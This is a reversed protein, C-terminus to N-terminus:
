KTITTTASVRGFIGIATLVGLISDVIGDPPIPMGPAFNEQVFRYILVIIGLLGAIITKSKYWEKSLEPM